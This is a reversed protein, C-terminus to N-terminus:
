PQVGAFRYISLGFLLLGCLLAVRSHDRRYVYFLLVMSMFLDVVGQFSIM